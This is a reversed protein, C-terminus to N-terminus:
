AVCSASTMMTILWYRSNTTIIADSVTNHLWTNILGAKPLRQDGRTRVLKIGRATLPYDVRRHSFEKTINALNEGHRVLYIRNSEM